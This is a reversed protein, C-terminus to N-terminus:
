TGVPDPVGGYLSWLQTALTGADVPLEIGTIAGAEDSLLFAIANAVQEPKVLRGLATQRIMTDPNREGRAYSAEVAPTRTPGPCVCNVRIGRRGWAVAFNRSMNIIAAKTPGYAQLPSSNFATISGVTVISGARRELMGAGFATLTRFTGTLNVRLIADWEADDQNEPMHPNELHAAVAALASCPGVEREVWRAAEDISSTDALDIERAVAGHRAAVERALDMNRDLVVVQWGTARLRAVCAEGIGGAGGTVAAVREQSSAAM